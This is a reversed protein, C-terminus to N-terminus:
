GWYGCTSGDGRRRYRAHLCLEWWCSGGAGGRWDARRRVKDLHRGKGQDAGNFESLDNGGKLALGSTRGEAHKVRGHCRVRTSVVVNRATVAAGAGNRWAWDGFGIFPVTCEAKGEVVARWFEEAGGYGLLWTALVRQQHVYALLFTCACRERDRRYGRDQM